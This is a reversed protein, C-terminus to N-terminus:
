RLSKRVQEAIENESLSFHVRRPRATEQRARRMGQSERRGKGHGTDTM